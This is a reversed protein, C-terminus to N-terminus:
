RLHLEELEGDMDHTCNPPYRAREFKHKQLWKTTTINFLWTDNMHHNVGFGGQLMLINGSMLMVHEMRGSPQHASLPKIQVWRGGHHHIGGGYRDQRSQTFNYFWLDDLYYSYAGFPMHSQTSRGRKALDETSPYPYHTRFGGHLWMGNRTTDLVAVHGAREPPWFVQSFFSSSLKSNLILVSDLPNACCSCWLPSVLNTVFSQTDFKHHGHHYFM